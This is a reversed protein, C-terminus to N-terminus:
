IREIIAEGYQYHCNWDIAYVQAQFLRFELKVGQNVFQDIRKGSTWQPLANPQDGTIPVSDDFTFGEFPQHESNTVQVWVRGNPALVNIRLDNSRPILFRTSFYGYGGVPELCTFGGPRLTHVLIESRAEVPEPPNEAFHEVTSGLSYFRMEGSPTEVMANTYIQESGPRGLPPRPLLPQRDTRNWHTGNLSYVLEDHVKGLWKCGGSKETSSIHQVQVLGFFQDHYWYPTMSYFQILPEDLSDPHLIVTPEAWHILDESEVISVRRDLCSPRCFIQYRQTIPNYVLNNDTDSGGKDRYWCSGPLLKWDLGDPSVYIRGCVKCEPLRGEFDAAPLKYRRTPDPDFPDYTVKYVVLPYRDFGVANRLTQDFGYRHAFGLDPRRWRYGDESEMYCLFTNFNKGAIEQRGNVPYWMRYLGSAPDRIVNMYGSPAFIEGDEFEFIRDAPIPKIFRRVVNSRSDLLWDDHFFITNM